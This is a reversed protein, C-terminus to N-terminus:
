GGSCATHLDLLFDHIQKFHPRTWQPLDAPINKNQENLLFVKPQILWPMSNKKKTEENVIKEEM